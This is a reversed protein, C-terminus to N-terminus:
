TVKVKARSMLVTGFFRRDTEPNPGVFQLRIGEDRIRQILEHGYLTHAQHHLSTSQFRIATPADEMVQAVQKKSQPRRWEKGDHLWVGYGNSPLPGEYM